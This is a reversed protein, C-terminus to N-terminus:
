CYCYCCCGTRMGDPTLMGREMMAQLMRRSADTNEREIARPNPDDTAWRVNLMEAGDLSQEAM